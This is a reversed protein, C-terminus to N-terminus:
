PPPEKVNVAIRCKEIFPIALAEPMHYLKLLQKHSLRHLTDLNSDNQEGDIFEQLLHLADMERLIRGLVTCNPPIPIAADISTAAPSPAGETLDLATAPPPRAAAAGASTQSSMNRRAHMVSRLSSKFRRPKGDRRNCQLAPTPQLPCRRRLRSLQLAGFRNLQLAGFRNWFIVLGECARAAAAYV